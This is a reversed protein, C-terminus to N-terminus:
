NAKSSHQSYCEQTSCINSPIYVRKQMLACCAKCLLISTTSLKFGHGFFQMFSTGSHTYSHIDCWGYLPWVCLSLKAKSNKHWVFWDLIYRQSKTVPDTNFVAGHHLSVRSERTHKSSYCLLSLIHILIHWLKVILCSNTCVHHLFNNHCIQKDWTLHLEFNPVQWCVVWGREVQMNDEM